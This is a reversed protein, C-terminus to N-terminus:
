HHGIEGLESGSPNKGHHLEVVINQPKNTNQM